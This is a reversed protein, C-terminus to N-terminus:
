SGTLTKKLVKEHEVATFAIVLDGPLLETNGHVTVVDDEGRVLAILVCDVPLDLEAVKPQGGFVQPEHSRRLALDGVGHLLDDAPM